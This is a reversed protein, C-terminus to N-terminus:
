VARWVIQKKGTNGPRREGSDVILGKRKLPALRPCCTHRFINTDEALEDGTMGRDGSQRISQLVLHELKPLDKKIKKAAVHSTEPDSRKAFAKFEGAFRGMQKAQDDRSAAQDFLPLKPLSPDDKYFRDKPM